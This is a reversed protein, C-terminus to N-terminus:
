ALSPWLYFLVIDFVALEFINQAVEGYLGDVWLCEFSVLGGVASSFLFLIPLHM